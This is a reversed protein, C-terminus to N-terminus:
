KSWPRVPVVTVPGTEPERTRSALVNLDGENFRGHEALAENILAASRRAVHGM